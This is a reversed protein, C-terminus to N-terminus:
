GYQFADSEPRALWEELTQAKADKPSLLAEKIPWDIGVAPDNWRIGSECAPNYVATCKYQVETWESLACFGRAFGPPAFVMRKDDESIVAGYWQGLTPSGKRIDVAMVFAEGRTVRMLKAQPERWQFHLGRIVGKCSKSHNDQVFQTPLGLEAFQDARFSEMFFGRDDGFAKSKLVVVDGLEVSEIEFPM